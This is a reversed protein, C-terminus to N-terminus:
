VRLRHSPWSEFDRSDDLYHRLSLITENKAEARPYENLFPVDIDLRCM